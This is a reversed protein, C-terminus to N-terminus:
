RSISTAALPARTGGKETSKVSQSDIIGVTPEPECGAAVRLELHLADHLRQFTGDRKWHTFYHFVASYPPFDHPLMRWQCGSRNLYLIANFIERRAHVCKRARPDGRGPPPLYREVQKWQKDTLDSPYRARKM